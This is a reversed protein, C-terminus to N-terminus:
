RKITATRTRVRAGTWSVFRYKVGERAHSFLERPISLHDPVDITTLHIKVSHAVKKGTSCRLASRQTPEAHTAAIITCPPSHGQANSERPIM